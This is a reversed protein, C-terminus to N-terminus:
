SIKPAPRHRFFAPSTWVRRRVLALADSFTPTRNAYWAAQFSMCPRAATLHEHALLTVLSFRALLAPTTRWLAQLGIPRERRSGPPDAGRVSLRSRAQAFAVNYRRTAGGGGPAAVSRGYAREAFQAREASMAAGEPPTHDPTTAVAP